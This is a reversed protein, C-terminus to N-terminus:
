KLSAKQRDHKDWLFLLYACVTHGAIFILFARTSLEPIENWKGHLYGLIFTFGRYLAVFVWGGIMLWKLFPVSSLNDFIQHAFSPNEKKMSCLTILSNENQTLSKKREAIIQQSNDKM